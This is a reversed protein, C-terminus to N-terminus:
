YNSNVRGWYLIRAQLIGHVSPGPPSYDMPDCLTLCSQLSKASMCAEGTIYQVVEPRPYEDGTDYSKQKKMKNMSNEHCSHHLPKGNEGRTSWMKDSNKVIVWGDQTVRCPM